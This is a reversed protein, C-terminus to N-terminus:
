GRSPIAAIYGEILRAFGPTGVDDPGLLWREWERRCDGPIAFWQGYPGPVKICKGSMLDLYVATAEDVPCGPDVTVTAVHGRWKPLDATSVVRLDRRGLDNTVGKLENELGPAVLYVSDAPAGKICTTRVDETSV